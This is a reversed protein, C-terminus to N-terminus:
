AIEDYKIELEVEEDGHQQYEVHGDCYVEAELETDFVAEPIIIKEGIYQREGIFLVKNYYCQYKM